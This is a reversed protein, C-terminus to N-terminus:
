YTAASQNNEIQSVRLTFSLDSHFINRYIRALQHEVHFKDTFLYYWSMAIM